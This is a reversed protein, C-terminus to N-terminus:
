KTIFFAISSNDDRPCSTLLVQRIRTIDGGRVTAGLKLTDALTTVRQERVWRTRERGKELEGGGIVLTTVSKERKFFSFYELYYAYKPAFATLTSLFTPAFESPAFVIPTYGGAVKSVSFSRSIYM